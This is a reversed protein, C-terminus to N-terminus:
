DESRRTTAAATLEREPEPWPRRGLVELRRLDRCACPRAGRNEVQEWGTDDCTACLPSRRKRLDAQQEAIRERQVQAAMARWQAVTPFRQARAILAEAAAVVFEIELNLLAAFYTRLQVADPDHERLAVALGAMAQMFAPRDADTM